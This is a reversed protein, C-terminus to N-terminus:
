PSEPYESITRSSSPTVDALFKGGAQLRGVDAIQQETLHTVDALLLDTSRTEGDRRPETAIVVVRTAHPFKVKVSQSYRVMYGRRLERYQSYDDHGERSITLFVYFPSDKFIPPIVRVCIQSPQDKLFFEGFSDSLMRRSFRNERALARVALEQQSLPTEPYAPSTGGLIHSNFEEILGDWWYSSQNATDRAVCEPRSIFHEYEGPPIEVIVNSAAGGFDFNLENQEDSRSMLYIALLDQESSALFIRGSRFLQERKTLYEVFDAITDRSSLVIELSVDDLVHVFGKNPDIDGVVFPLRQGDIGFNAKFSERLGELYDAPEGLTAGQFHANGKLGSFL